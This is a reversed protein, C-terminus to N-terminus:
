TQSRGHAYLRTDLCPLLLMDCDTTGGDIGHHPATAGPNGAMMARANQNPQFVVMLELTSEALGRGAQAHDASAGSGGGRRHIDCGGQDAELLAHVISSVLGIDKNAGDVMNLKADNSIQMHETSYSSLRAYPLCM